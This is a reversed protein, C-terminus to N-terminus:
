NSIGSPIFPVPSTGVRTPLAITARTKTNTNTNTLPHTNEPHPPRVAMGSM